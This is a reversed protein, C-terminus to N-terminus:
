RVNKFIRYMLLAFYIQYIQFYLFSWLLYFGEKWRIQRINEPKSSLWQSIELNEEDYMDPYGTVNQNLAKTHKETLFECVYESQARKIM